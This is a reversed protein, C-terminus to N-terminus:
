VPTMKGSIKDWAGYWFLLHDRLWTSWWFLWMAHVSGAGVTILAHALRTNGNILSLALECMEFALFAWALALRVPTLLLWIFPRLYFELLGM